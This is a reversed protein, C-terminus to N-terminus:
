KHSQYLATNLLLQQVIKCTSVELRQGDAGAVCTPKKAVPTQISLHEGARQVKMVAPRRSAGLTESPQVTM